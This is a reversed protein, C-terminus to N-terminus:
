LLVIIFSGSTCSHTVAPVPAYTSDGSPPIDIDVLQAWEPYGFKEWCEESTHNTRGCHKCLRSWKDSVALKAGLVV